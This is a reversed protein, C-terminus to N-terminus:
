QDVGRSLGYKQALYSFGTALDSLDSERATTTSEFSEGDDETYFRQMTVTHYTEGNRTKNRWVSLKFSGARVTEVPRNGSDGEEEQEQQKTEPKSVSEAAVNNKGDYITQETM